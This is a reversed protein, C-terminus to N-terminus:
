HRNCAAEVEEFLEMWQEIVHSMEFAETRELCSQQYKHRLSEDQLLTVIAEALASEARSLPIQSKKLQGDFPPILIGFKCKEIRSTTRHMNTDPALVERPGSKCDSSVVPIKCVMAEILVNPLGEWLSSLVCVMARSIFKLPNQQFGLFYVKNIIGMDSAMSEAYSRLKGDGLFVLRAQPVTELIKKFARILYWQGKDKTFRGVHIIVPGEFIERYEDEIPEKALSLMHHIDFPNYIVGVKDRNVDFIDLFDDMSGRSVFIIRDAKHILFKYLLKTFIERTIGSEKFSRKLSTRVSLIRHQKGTLALNFINAREMFSVVIDFKERNLVRCLRLYQIPAYLFEEILTLGDTFSLPIVRVNDIEVSTSVDTLLLSVDVGRNSLGKALRVAAGEAGYLELTPILIAIRM